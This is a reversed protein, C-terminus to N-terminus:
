STRSKDLPLCAVEDGATVSLLACDKASLRVRDGDLVVTTAMARFLPAAGGNEAARTEAREAAVLFRGGQDLSLVGDAVQFRRTGRVLTM